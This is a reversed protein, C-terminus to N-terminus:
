NYLDIPACSIVTAIMEKWDYAAQPNSVKKYWRPLLALFFVSLVEPDIEVHSNRSVSRDRNSRLFYRAVHRPLINELLRTNITEARELTKDEEAIKTKWLYNLRLDYEIQHFFCETLPVTCM